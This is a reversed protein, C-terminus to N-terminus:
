KLSEYYSPNLSSIFAAEIHEHAKNLWEIVWECSQLDDQFGEVQQSVFDLDLMLVPEGDPKVAIGTKHILAAIPSDYMFEYTQQFSSISKNMPKPFLPLIILFDDVKFGEILPPIIHNIYRLGIRQLTFESCLNIYKKFTEIILERFDEWSVYPQLHNIILRNQGLQLMASGDQRRLQLRQPTPAILPMNPVDGFGIQFSFENVSTQIPFEDKVQAYFLGPLTLENTGSLGFQFECLAEVLPQLKLPEGM